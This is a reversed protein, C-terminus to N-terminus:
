WEPSFIVEGTRRTKITIDNFTVLDQNGILISGNAEIGRYCEKFNTVNNVFTLTSGPNALIGITSAKNGGANVSCGDFVFTGLSLRVAYQSEFGDEKRWFNVGNFKVNCQDFRTTLLYAGSEGSINFTQGSGLITGGIHEGKLLRISINVGYSNRIGFYCAEEFSKFPKSSTGDPRPHNSAPDVYIWKTTRPNKTFPRSEGTVGKKYNGKFVYSVFTDLIRGNSFGYRMGMYFNDDEDFSIFQMEEGNYYDEYNRWNDNEIIRVVEGQINFVAISPKGMTAFFITDNNVSTNQGLGWGKNVFKDEFDIQKIVKFDEDVEFIGLDDSVYQKGTHKDYSYSKVRRGQPVIPTVVRKITFNGYDLITLSNNHSSVGNNQTNAHAVILENTKKNYDIANAHYLMLPATKRLMNGTVLDYERIEARNDAPAVGNNLFAMLITNGVICGGQLSGYKYDLEGELMAPTEVRLQLSMDTDIPYDKFTSANLKKSDLDDIDENIDIVAQNLEEKDSKLDLANQNSVEFLEFTEKDLKLKDLESIDESLGTIVLEQGEKYLEYTDIFDEFVSKDLKMKFLTDNILQELTGDKLWVNLQIIVEEKLGEDLLWNLVLEIQKMYENTVDIVKNMLWIIQLVLEYNTNASEGYSINMPNFQNVRAVFSEFEKGEFRPPIFSPKNKM